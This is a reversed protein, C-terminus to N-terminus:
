TRGGRNTFEPGVVAAELFMEVEVPEWCQLHAGDILVALCGDPGTGRYALCRRTAPTAKSRAVDRALRQSALSRMVPEPGIANAIISM